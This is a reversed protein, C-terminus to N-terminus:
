ALPELHLAVREKMLLLQPETAETLGFGAAVEPAADLDLRTWVLAPDELRGQIDLVLPEAQQWAGRHFVCALRQVRQATPHFTEANLEIM